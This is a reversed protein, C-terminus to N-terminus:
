RRSAEADRARALPEQGAAYYVFARVGLEDSRGALRYQPVRLQMAGDLHLRLELRSDAAATFPAFELHAYGPDPWADLSCEGEARTQRRGGHDIQDISWRLRGAGAGRPCAELDVRCLPRASAACFAQVIQECDRLLKIQPSPGRPALALMPVVTMDCPEAACNGARYPGIGAARMRQLDRGFADPCFDQMDEWHLAAVSEVPLGERVSQEMRLVCWRMDFALRQGKVNYLVALLVLAAAGAFRLRAWRLQAPAPRPGYSVGVLYLCVILPSGLLSYRTQLCGITGRALGMGLAMAMAGALFLALGSIRLREAPRRRWARYLTAAALTALALVILAGAPHTEGGFKGWSMSLFQLGGHFATSFGPKGAPTDGHLAPLDALWLKLPILTVASLVLIAVSAARSDRWRAAGAYALWAVVAPLYFVGPGGCLAAAIALVSAALAAAFSLRKRDATMLLLLCCALATPMTFGLQFGWLFNVYHGWNMLLVPILLDLASARGRRRAVVAVLTLAVPVLLLTSFVAILRFDIATARALGLYALKVLVFRHGNESQALWAWTAPQEGVLVPLWRFEDAWPSALACRYVFWLTSIALLASGAVVLWKEGAQWKEWSSRREDLGSSEVNRPDITARIM